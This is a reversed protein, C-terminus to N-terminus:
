GTHHHHITDWALEDPLPVWILRYSSPTHYGMGAWRTITGMDAQIIVTYPTGHWGMQHHYGMDAQIIVNYPTGHWGMQHHCGMDAQIIVNYPTGHWCMQHHCGMDAQIIVNYTTGHWGMQHHCGMDGTHHRQITDWALGDQSPM